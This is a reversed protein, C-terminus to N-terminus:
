QVRPNDHHRPRPADVRVEGIIRGPRPSLVLVRDALYLAIAGTGIGVAVTSYSLAQDPWGLTMAAAAVWSTAATVVLGAPFRMWSLAVHGRGQGLRAIRPSEAPLSSVPTVQQRM